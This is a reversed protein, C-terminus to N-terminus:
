SKSSAAIKSFILVLEHAEQSLNNAANECSPEIGIILKIWYGTEKAEKKCIYIKNAFDKKSNAGNAERYNAGVSTASRVLQNILPKTLINQPLSKCFLLTTLGFKETREELDYKHM